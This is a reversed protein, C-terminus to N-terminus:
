WYMGFGLQKPDNEFMWPPRNLIFLETGQAVRQLLAARADPAIAGDQEPVWVGAQCGGQAVHRVFAATCNGVADSLKPHRYLGGAIKGDSLQVEILMAVREGVLGDVLRVIPETLSVLPRVAVPDQLISKPVVRALAVMAWNWPEPDTGFRASVSPIGLVKHTSSVEPLNYLYTSKRGLGKGFDVVRRNSVAPLTVQEGDKYAVVEEGALLYSTALITPGAGGTGATYYSYLCRLPQVPPGNSSSTTTTTGKEGGGGGEEEGGGQRQLGEPVFEGRAIACMHAAMVSSAGPYIGATTIASVGAAKAQASYQQARESYELDDCVDVYNVGCSIAAELVSCETSCATFPVCVSFFHHLPVLLVRLPSVISLVIFIYIIIIIDM